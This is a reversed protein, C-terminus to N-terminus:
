RRSVVRRAAFFRHDPHHVGLLGLWADAAHSLSAVLQRDRGGPAWAAVKLRYSAMAFTPLCMATTVPVGSNNGKPEPCIGGSLDTEVDHTVPEFRVAVWPFITWNNPTKETFHKHVQSSRPSPIIHSSAPTWIAYHQDRRFETYQIGAAIMLFSSNLTM